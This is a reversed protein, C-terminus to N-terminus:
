TSWGMGRVATELADQRSITSLFEVSKGGPLNVKAIWWSKIKRTKM